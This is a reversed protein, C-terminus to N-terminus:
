PQDVLRWGDLLGGPHRDGVEGARHGGRPVARGARHARRRPRARPRRHDARARLRPRDVLRPDPPVRDAGPRASGPGAGAPVRRERGGGGRDHRAALHPQDRRLVAPPDVARRPVLEPEVHPGADLHHRARPAGRRRGPDGPGGVAARDDVPERERRGRAAQLRDVRDARDWGAAAGAGDPQRYRSRLPRQRAGRVGGAEPLQGLLEPQHPDRHPTRRATSCTSRAM